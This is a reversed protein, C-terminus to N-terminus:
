QPVEVARVTMAESLLGADAYRKPVWCRGRTSSSPGKCGWGEGWSNDVLYAGVEDGIKIGADWGRIVFNHGGVDKEGKEPYRILGDNACQESMMNEFCTIGVSLGFGQALSAVITRHNPAHFWLVGQHDLADKKAVDDPELELQVGNDLTPWLEERCLGRKVLGQLAHPIMCGSDETLPTGEELRTMSYGFMASLKVRVKAVALHKAEVVRATAQGTCDGIGGQDVIPLQDFLTLDVFSPALYTDDPVALAARHDPPVPPSFRLGALHRKVGHGDPVHRSM